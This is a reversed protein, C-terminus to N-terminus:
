CEGYSNFQCICRRHWSKGLAIFEGGGVFLPHAPSRNGAKHLNYNADAERSQPKAPFEGAFVRLLCLFCVLCSDSSKFHFLRSICFRM